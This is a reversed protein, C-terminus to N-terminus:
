LAKSDTYNSISLLGLFDRGRRTIILNNGKIEIFKSDYLYRLYQEVSWDNLPAPNNKQATSFHEEVAMNPLGETLGSLKRLLSIQSGFVVNYTQEFWTGVQSIALSHILLEVTTGEYELNRSKLDSEIKKEQEAIIEFEQGADMIDKIHQESIEINKVNNNPVQQCSALFSEDDRFDQPAYLKNHHRSVLWGFLVLVIVPFIVVFWVLPSREDTDLTEASLGFLLCAFGYVMVIFLAIIGLPNKSLDKASKTLTNLNNDM